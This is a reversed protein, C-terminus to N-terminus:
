YDSTTSDRVWDLYPKHGDIIPVTIIEPVEYPHHEELWAYVGKACEQRTKITLQVEVGRKLEGGWEYISNLNATLNVCAALQKEVLETAMKEGSGLDPYTTYIICFEEDM